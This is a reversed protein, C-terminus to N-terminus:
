LVEMDGPGALCAQGPQRFETIRFILIVSAAHAFGGLDSFAPGDDNWGGEATAEAELLPGEDDGLLAVAANEDAWGYCERDLGVARLPAGFEQEAVGYVGVIIGLSDPLNPPETEVGFADRM